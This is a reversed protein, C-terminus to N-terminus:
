CCSSTQPEDMDVADELQVQVKPTVKNEIEPLDDVIDKFLDDINFGTKASAEFVDDIGLKNAKAKAKEFTVVRKAHLDEKIKILVLHLNNMNVCYESTKGFWFDINEFSKANTIDYVFCICHTNRIYSPILSRFREQGATDWLQM